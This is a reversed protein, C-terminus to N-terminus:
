TAAGTRSSRAKGAYAANQRSVTWCYWRSTPRGSNPPRPTETRNTSSSGYWSTSDISSSTRRRRSFTQALAALPFGCGYRLSPSFSM